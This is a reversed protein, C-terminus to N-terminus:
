IIPEAAARRRPKPMDPKEYASVDFDDSPVRALFREAMEFMLIDPRVKEIYSWDLSSSWVFHLERFSESLFATLMIPAYHAYSDGFLVVTRPDAAPSDNRYIVHAGVHLDGCRGAAEYSEVLPSAHIRVADRHVTWNTVTERPRDPLKDGLDWLGEATFRVREGLDPPPVAGCARLLARHALLCGDYTWHSDTKRFLPTAAARPARRPPARPASGPRPARRAALRRAKSLSPDYDLGVTLNDYISLKEPVLTHVYRMGLAQARASRAEILRAWRRLHWWNGLSRRYQRLVNNTGGVLFLWGDRGRHVTERHRREM